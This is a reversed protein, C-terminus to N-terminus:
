AVLFTKGTKKIFGHLLYMKHDKVTFLVRAIRSKLNSRVEWLGSGFSEVTPYGLPWGWQVTGIDEGM